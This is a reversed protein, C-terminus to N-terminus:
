FILDVSTIGTPNIAFDAIRDVDIDGLLQGDAFRLQDQKGTFERLGINTHDVYQTKCRGDLM